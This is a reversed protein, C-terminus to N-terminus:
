VSHYLITYQTTETGHKKKQPPPHPTETIM